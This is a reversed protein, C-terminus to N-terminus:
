SLQDYTKRYSFTTSALEAHLISIGYPFGTIAAHAENGNEPEELVRVPSDHKACCEKVQACNGTSFVDNKHIKKSELGQRIAEASDSIRKDLVGSFYSANTVSLYDEGERLEFAQPFIHSPNGHEDVEPQGDDTRAVFKKRVWRVLDADNPIPDYRAM